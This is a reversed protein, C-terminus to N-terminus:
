KREYTNKNYINEVERLILEKYQPRVLVNKDDLDKIVLQRNHQENLFMIIQKTPIDTTILVGQHKPIPFM